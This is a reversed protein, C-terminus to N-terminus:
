MNDPLIKQDVLHQKLAISGAMIASFKVYNMSSLDLRFNEKVVKKLVLCMGAAIGTLTLGVLITKVPKNDIM